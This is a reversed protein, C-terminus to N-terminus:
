LDILHGITYRMSLLITQRLPNRTPSNTMAVGKEDELNQANTKVTPHPSLTQSPM